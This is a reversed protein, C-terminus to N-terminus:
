KDTCFLLFNFLPSCIGIRLFCFDNNFETCYIPTLPSLINLLIIEVKAIFIDNVLNM